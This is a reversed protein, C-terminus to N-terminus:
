SLGIRHRKPTASRSPAPSRRNAPCNVGTWATGLDRTGSRNEVRMVCLYAAGCQAGREAGGEAGREAGRQAPSAPPREGYGSRSHSRSHSQSRSM